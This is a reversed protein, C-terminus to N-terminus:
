FITGNFCFAARRFDEELLFNGIKQATSFGGYFLKFSKGTSAHVRFYYLEREPHEDYWICDESDYIFGFSLIHESTIFKPKSERFRNLKEVRVKRTLIENKASL